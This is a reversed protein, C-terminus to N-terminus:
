YVSCVDGTLRSGAEEVRNIEAMYVVGGEM